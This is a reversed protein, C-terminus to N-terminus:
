SSAGLAEEIQKFNAGLIPPSDGVVTVPIAMFGMEVMEAQAAEDAHIDKVEYELDKQSLFEKM